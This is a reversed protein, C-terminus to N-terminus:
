KLQNESMLILIDQYIKNLLNEIVINENKVTESYQDHAKFSSSLVYNKNLIEENSLYDNILINANITTKYELIKGTSDKATSNRNKSIKILINITLAEPNKENAKSLNYLKSYIINGLNKDGEITHEEVIFKLDSKSFIPKYGACSYIHAVLLFLISFFFIKKM